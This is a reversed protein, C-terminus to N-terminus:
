WAGESFMSGPDIPEYTVDDESKFDDMYANGHYGGLGTYYGGSIGTDTQTKTDTGNYVTITSGTARTRITCPPQITTTSHVWNTASGGVFKKLYMKYTADTVEGTYYTQTSTDQLRVISGAAATSAKFARIYIYATLNTSSLATNACYAIKQNASAPNNLENSAISINNTGYVKVWTWGQNNGGYTANGASQLTANSRTFDDYRTTTPKESEIKCTIPLLEKASMRFQRELGGLVKGAFSKDEIAMLELGIQDKVGLWEPSVGPRIRVKHQLENGIWLELICRNTPMLGKPQDYGKPDRQLTLYSWLNDLFGGLPSWRGGLLAELAGVQKGTLYFDLTGDGLVLSLSHQKPKKDWFFLSFINQRPCRLDIHDIAGEPAIWGLEKDLIYPEVSVWIM